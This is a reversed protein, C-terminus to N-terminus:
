KDTRKYVVRRNLAKGSETENTAIPQSEGFGVTTLRSGDIGHQTIADKVAMARRESLGQNYADTGTDDTHGQIEVTLGPNLKLVEVANTILPSYMSKVVTSDIDFLVDHFVWCGLKTVKAGKPTDPCKDRSDPVGDGDSDPDTTVPTGANFFVNEVFNAMGAGSALSEASASVGCDTANALESLVAKGPAEEENGVWVTSLCLRDGYKEKLEMIAPLPSADYNFGDSLLIVAINGSANELDGSLSTFAHSVPTGGSSCNITNLADTFSSQSYAQVPANLETYGWDLCQGFGFSRMGSSLPVDPITHNLGSLLSKSVSFKTAGTMGSFASGQYLKSMSSSADNIIFFTNVKQELEGSKVKPNLNIAQFPQSEHIVKSGCGTLAASFLLIALIPFKTM